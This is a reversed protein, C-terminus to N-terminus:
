PRRLFGSLRVINGSTNSIIFVESLDFDNWRGDDEATIVASDGPGVLIGSAVTVTEDGIAVSGVNTADAQVTLSHVPFYSPQLPQRESAQTALQPLTFIKQGSGNGAAMKNM